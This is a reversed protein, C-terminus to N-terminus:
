SSTQRSSCGKMLSWVTDIACSMAAFIPLSPSFMLTRRKARKLTPSAPSVTATVLGVSCFASYNEPARRPAKKQTYVRFFQEHVYKSALGHLGRGEFANQELKRSFGQSSILAKTHIRSADVLNRRFQGVHVRQSHLKRDHHTAAVEKTAHCILSAIHVADGGIVHTHQGCHDIRQRQLIRQFLLIDVSAHLRRNLHLLHGLGEDPAASDTM